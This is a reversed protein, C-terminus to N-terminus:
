NNKAGANVWSVLIQVQDPTLAPGDKPMKGSEISQILKSGTPNGAVIVAGNQSGAMISAFTRLDLGKSTKEVGHCKVCTAQLIPNVDKTFSINGTAGQTSGPQSSPSNGTSIATSGSSNLNSAPKNAGSGSCAALVTVSLVAIVLYQVFRISKTMMM